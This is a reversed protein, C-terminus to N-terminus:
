PTEDMQIAFSSQEGSGIDSKWETGPIQTPSSRMSTHEQALQGDNNRGWAWLTNDTKTALMHYQTNAVDRWTTGPIQVPSSYKPLNNPGSGGYIPYGWVWLTLFYSMSFKGPM